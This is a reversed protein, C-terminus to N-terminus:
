ASYNQNIFINSGFSIKEAINGLHLLTDKILEANYAQYSKIQGELKSIFDISKEGTIKKEGDLLFKAKSAFINKWKQVMTPQENKLM